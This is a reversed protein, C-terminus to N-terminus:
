RKLTMGGDITLIEGCLADNKLLFMVGAAIESPQIWRNILLEKSKNKKLEKDISGWMPTETIGPAISNVLIDPALSKALNKMYSDLAAKMSSYAIAGPRGHGIRGHVSSIFVIKGKSMLSLTKQTINVHALFNINFIRKFSAINDPSDSKDFIAANNILFDIKDFHQQIIWFMKQIDEPNSIDAQVALSKLNKDTAIKVINQASEKDTNYHVIVNCGEKILALTIAKGIGKSAGTILATKNSLTTM